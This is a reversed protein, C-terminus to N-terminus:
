EGERMVKMALSGWSNLRELLNIGTAALLMKALFLQPLLHSFKTIQNLPYSTGTVCGHFLEAESRALCGGVRPELILGEGCDVTLGHALSGQALDKFAVVLIALM